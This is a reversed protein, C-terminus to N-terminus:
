TSIAPPYLPQVSATNLCEPPIRDIPEWKKSLLNIKHYYTFFDDTTPPAVVAHIRLNNPGNGPNVKGIWTGNGPDFQVSSYGQPWFKRSNALETLLWIKHGPSLHKLKGSVYYYNQGHAQEAFQLIQLHGPSVISIRSMQWLRLSRTIGNWIANSAVGEAIGGIAM